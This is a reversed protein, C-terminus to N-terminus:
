GREEEWERLAEDDVELLFPSDWHCGDWGAKYAIEIIANRLKKSNPVFLTKYVPPRGDTYAQFYDEEIHGYKKNVMGTTVFNKAIKKVMRNKM